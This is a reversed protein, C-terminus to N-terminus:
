VCANVPTRLSACDVTGSNMSLDRTCIRDLMQSRAVHFRQNLSLRTARSQIDCDVLEYTLKSFKLNVIM